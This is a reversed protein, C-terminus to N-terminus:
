ILKEILKEIKIVNKKISKDAYFVLYVGLLVCIIGIFVILILPPNQLMSLPTFIPRRDDENISYQIPQGISFIKFTTLFIFLVDLFIFFAILMKKYGKEWFKIIKNLSKIRAENSPKFLDDFFATTAFIIITAICFISLSFTLLIGYVPNNPVANLVYFYDIAAVIALVSSLSIVLLSYKKEQSLESFKPAIKKFFEM